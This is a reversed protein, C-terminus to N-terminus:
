VPPTWEVANRLRIGSYHLSSFWADALPQLRELARLEVGAAAIAGELDGVAEVEIPEVATSSVHTGHDQISEFPAADFRYRYLACARIRSLWGSEVHAVMSAQSGIWREVDAASSGRLAWLVIRPCDRPFLYMPAHFEDIAWVLREGAPRGAIARGPRPEFVEISPDESFHYLFEPEVGESAPLVSM